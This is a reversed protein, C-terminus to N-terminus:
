HKGVFVGSAAYDSGTINFSGGMEPPPSGTAAPSGAFYGSAQLVRDRASDRGSALASATVGFAQSNPTLGSAGTFSQNDFQANFANVRYHSFGFEVRSDFRGLHERLAGDNAVSGIMGGSYTATKSAAAALEAASTAAGQVWYHLGIVNGSIVLPQRQWNLFRCDRCVASSSGSRVLIGIPKGYVYADARLETSGGNTLLTIATQRGTECDPEEPDCKKAKKEAKKKAKKDAKKKAKKEAKEEAKKAAAANKKAAREEARRDEAAKKKDAKKKAKEEARRDEASKKKAAKKEAKKIVAAEIKKIKKIAKKEKKTPTSSGDGWDSDLKVSVMTISDCASDDDCGLIAGGEEDFGVVIPADTGTENKSTGIGSEAIKKGSLSPDPIAPDPAGVASKVSLSKALSIIKKQQKKSLGVLDGSSSGLATRAAKRDEARTKRADKLEEKATKLDDGAQRKAKTAARLEKRTERKDASATSREAVKDDLVRNAESREKKSQKLDIRLTKQESDTLPEDGSKAAKLQKHITAIDANASARKEKAQKIQEVVDEREDYAAEASQKRETREQEKNSLETRAQTKEDFEKKAASRAAKRKKVKDLVATEAENFERNAKQRETEPEAGDREPSEESRLTVPLESAPDQAGRADGSLNGSSNVLDITAPDQEMLGTMFALTKPNVKQKIITGGDASTATIMTGAVGTTKMTVGSPLIVELAGFLLVWETRGEVVIGAAIGGRVAITASPTKFVVPTNKSIKGGVLRFVGKSISITMEGLGTAPDYVYEDIVLDSQPGVTLATGDQFLLQARGDVDTSIVEQFHVEVGTELDRAPSIPPKGVADINSAGIVGVEVEDTAALTATSCCFVVAMVTRILLNLKLETKM